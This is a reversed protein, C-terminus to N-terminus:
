EKEGPEITLMLGNASNKQYTAYDVVLHLKLPRQFKELIGLMANEEPREAELAVTYEKGNFSLKMRM